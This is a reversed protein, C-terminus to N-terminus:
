ISKKSGNVDVLNMMIRADFWSNKGKKLNSVQQKWSFALAETSEPLSIERYLMVASGPSQSEIRLFSNRNEEVLQAEKIKPWGEPWNKGDM